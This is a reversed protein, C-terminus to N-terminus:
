EIKLAKMIKDLKENIEDLNISSNRGSKSKGGQKEFCDSCYVPKDSTPKFPVECEVGCSSCTVKTM